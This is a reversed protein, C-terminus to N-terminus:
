EGGKKENQKEFYSADWPYDAKDRTKYTKATRSRFGDLKKVSYRLGNGNKLLHIITDRPPRTSRVQYSEYTGNDALLGIVRYKIGKRDDMYINKPMILRKLRKIFYGRYPMLM